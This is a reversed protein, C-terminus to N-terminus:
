TGADVDDEVPEPDPRVAAMLQRLMADTRERAAERREREAAERDPATAERDRRRQASAVYDIGNGSVLGLVPLTFRQDLGEVRQPLQGCEEAFNRNAKLILEFLVKFRGADVSGARVEMTRGDIVTSSALLARLQDWALDRLAQIDDLRAQKRTMVLDEFQVSMRRRIDDIEDRYKVKLNYVTSPAKQYKERLEVDPVGAAADRLFRQLDLESM